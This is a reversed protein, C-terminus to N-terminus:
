MPKTKKKEQFDLRGLRVREKGKKEREEGCTICWKVFCGISPIFANDMYTATKTQTKRGLKKQKKHFYFSNNFAPASGRMTFSLPLVGAPLRCNKKETQIVGVVVVVFFLHQWFRRWEHEEAVVSPLYTGV